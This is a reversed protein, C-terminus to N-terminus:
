IIIVGDKVRTIIGNDLYYDSLRTDDLCMATLELPPGSILQQLDQSYTSVNKRKTPECFWERLPFFICTIPDASLRDDTPQRYSSIEAIFKKNGLALVYKDHTISYTDIFNALLQLSQFRGHKDTYSSFKAM